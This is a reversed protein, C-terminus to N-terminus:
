AKFTVTNFVEGPKQSFMEKLEEPKVKTLGSIQVEKFFQIRLWKM